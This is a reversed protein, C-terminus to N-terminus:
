TMEVLTVDGGAVSYGYLAGTNRLEYIAGDPLKIGRTAGSNTVASTGAIWLDAGTNNQVLGNKRNLNQPAIIAATTAALTTRAAAAIASGDSISVGGANQSIIKGTRFVADSFAKLTMSKSAQADWFVFVKSVPYNFEVSSNMTMKFAVNQMERSNTFVWVFTDSDTASEVYISKFPGAFEQAGARTVATALSPLNIEAALPPRNMMQDAVLAEDNRKLASLIQGIDETTFQNM